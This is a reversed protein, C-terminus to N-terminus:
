NLRVRLDIWEEREGSPGVRYSDVAATGGHGPDICIKKDQLPYKDSNCSYLLSIFLLFCIWMMNRISLLAM